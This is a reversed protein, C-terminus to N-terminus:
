GFLSDSSQCCEELMHFIYITFNGAYVGNIRTMTGLQRQTSHFTGVFILGEQSKKKGMKM